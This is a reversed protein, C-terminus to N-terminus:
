KADRVKVLVDEPYFAIGPLGNIGDGIGFKIDPVLLTPCDICTYRKIGGETVENCINGGIAEDTFEERDPDTAEVLLLSLEYAALMKLAIEYTAAKDVLNHKENTYVDWWDLNVRDWNEFPTIIIEEVKIKCSWSVIKPFNKLIIGKIFGINGREEDPAVNKCVQKMAAEIESGLLIVQRTFFESYATKMLNYPVYQRVGTFEAEISLYRQWGYM